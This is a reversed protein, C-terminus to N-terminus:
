EADRLVEDLEREVDNRGYQREYMHATDFWAVLGAFVGLKITLIVAYAFM